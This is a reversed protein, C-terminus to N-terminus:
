PSREAAALRRVAREAVAELGLAFRSGAPALGASRLDSLWDQFLERSRPHALKNLLRLADRLLRERGPGPQEDGLLGLVVGLEEPVDRVSCSELAATFAPADTRAAFAPASVPPAFRYLRDMALVSGQV